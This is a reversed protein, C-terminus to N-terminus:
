RYGQMLTEKLPAKLGPPILAAELANLNCTLMDAKRWGFVAALRSYEKALTVHSVGRTDTNIGVSIGERYLRDVPHDAYTKIVNTQENCTPCVELHISEDRLHQVLSPDEISRIGHGIRQPQLRDITERVSDAGRAEGAHAVTPIRHSHAYEFAAVHSDLSFGDESGAIDLAIVRTGRFTRVLEATQMSQRCDFHRLTCLIIRSEIGSACTARSCAADICEVVDTPSLGQSQHLLPAFRIETYIVHERQLQRFLDTVAVNLAERTQLLDVGARTHRLYDDLNECRPPAVFRMWYDDQAASPCIRHVAEFSLTCDLHSHLEIKPCEQWFAGNEVPIGCKKLTQHRRARARHPM